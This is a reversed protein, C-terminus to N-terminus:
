TKFLKHLKTSVELLLTNLPLCQSHHFCLAIKRQLAVSYPPFMQNQFLHSPISIQFIRLPRSISYPPQNKIAEEQVQVPPRQVFSPSSSFPPKLCFPPHKTCSNYFIATYNTQKNKGQSAASSLFSPLYKKLSGDLARFGIFQQLLIEQITTKKHKKQGTKNGSQGKTPLAPSLVSLLLEAIHVLVVRLHALSPPVLLQSQMPFRFSSSM